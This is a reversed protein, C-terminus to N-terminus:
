LLRLLARTLASALLSIIVSQKLHTAQTAIYTTITNAMGRGLPMCFGYMFSAVVLLGVQM